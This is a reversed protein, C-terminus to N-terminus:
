NQTRIAEAVQPAAVSVISIGGTILALIAFFKRMLTALVIQLITTMIPKTIIIM